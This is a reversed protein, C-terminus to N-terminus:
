YYQNATPKYCQEKADRDVIEDNGTIKTSQLPTANSRSIPPHHGQAKLTGRVKTSQEHCQKKNNSSSAGPSEADGKSKDISHTDSQKETDSSSAGPSEVGAKSKDVLPALCQKETDSSSAGPSEVNGASKAALPVGCQKETNSSSPGPREVDGKDTVILPTDYQKKSGSSSAGPSDARILRKWLNCAVKKQLEKVASSGLEHGKSGQWLMHPPPRGDQDFDVGFSTLIEM